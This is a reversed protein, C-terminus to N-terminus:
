WHMWRSVWLSAEAMWDKTSVLQVEDSLQRTYELSGSLVFLARPTSPTELEQFLIDDKSLSFQSCACHCVKRMGVPNVENYCRFFPQVCIIPFNMEFHLEM